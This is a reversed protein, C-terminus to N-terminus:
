SLIKQEGERARTQSSATCLECRLSSHGIMLVLTNLPLLILLYPPLRFGLSFFSFLNLYLVVYLYTYISMCLRIALHLPLFALPRNPLDM